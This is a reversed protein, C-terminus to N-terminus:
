ISDFLKIYSMSEIDSEIEKELNTSYRYRIDKNELLTVIADGLSNEDFECITGNVGNTISDYVTDYNTAVISKGLIKAEDLVISKGEFRSPQIFIDAYQIYPYPNKRLGLLYVNENLGLEDIQNRLDQELEGEGIIFWSYNLGDKKMKYAAKIALDFGKQENLRGISVLINIKNIYETPKEKYGMERIMKPSSLNYLLHIKNKYEPFVKKLSSVCVESITILADAKAFYKRDYESFYSLKEYENHVWLIKKEAEVKDVVYYNSFGDVYSIALDYKIKNKPISYKWVKWLNQVENFKKDNTIKLCIKNLLAKLILKDKKKSTLIKKLPKYMESIEAVPEVINVWKPINDFFINNRNLVLLDLDCYDPEICNLLSVLSKQAGGCLLNNIVILIKKKNKM